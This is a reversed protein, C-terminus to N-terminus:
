PAARRIAVAFPEDEARTDPALAEFPLLSEHNEGRNLMWVSWADHVDSVTVQEGKVRALLAYLRFLADLDTEDPLVDPSTEARIARALEDIYSALTSV